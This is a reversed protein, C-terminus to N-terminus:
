ARVFSVIKHPLPPPLFGICLYVFLIIELVSLVFFIFYSLTTFCLPPPHDPYAKQLPHCQFQSRSHRPLPLSLQFLITRAFPCLGAHDFVPLCAPTSRLSPINSSHDPDSSVLDPDVAEPAQTKNQVIPAAARNKFLLIVRDLKDKLVLTLM